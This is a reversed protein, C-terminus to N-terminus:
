TDTHLSNILLCYCFFYVATCLVLNIQGAYLSKSGFWLKAKRVLDCKPNSKHPGGVRGAHWVYISKQVSGVCVLWRQMFNVKRISSM